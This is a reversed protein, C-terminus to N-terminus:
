STTSRCLTSNAAGLLMASAPPPCRQHGRPELFGVRYHQSDAQDSREDGALEAAGAQAHHSELTALRTRGHGIKLGRVHVVLQAIGHALFEHLVRCLFGEREAILRAFGRKRDPAQLAKKRAGAEAARRHM